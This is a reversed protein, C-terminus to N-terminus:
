NSEKIGHEAIILIDPDVEDIVIELQDQKNNLYQINQFLINIPKKHHNLSDNSTNWYYQLENCNKLSNCTIVQAHKTFSMERFINGKNLEKQFILLITTQANKNM